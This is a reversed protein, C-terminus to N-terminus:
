DETAFVGTRHTKDSDRGRGGLVEPASRAWFDYFNFWQYPADRLIEELLVLYKEVLILAAARRGVPQQLADDSLTVLRV